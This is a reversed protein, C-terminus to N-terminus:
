MKMLVQHDIIVLFENSDENLLAQKVIDPLLYYYIQHLTKENTLEIFPVEMIVVLILRNTRQMDGDYFYKMGNKQVLYM